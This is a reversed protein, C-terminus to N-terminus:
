PILPQTIMRMHTLGIAQKTFDYVSVRCAVDHKLIVSADDDAVDIGLRRRVDQYNRALM